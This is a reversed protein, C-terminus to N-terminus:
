AHPQREREYITRGDRHAYFCLHNVLTKRQEFEVPTYVFVDLSFSRRPFLARVDRNRERPPKESNSLVLLDYDSDPRATGKARSGFLIIREPDVADVIRRVIRDLLVQAEERLIPAPM